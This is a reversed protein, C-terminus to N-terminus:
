LWLVATCFTFMTMSSFGNLQELHRLDALTTTENGSMCNPEEQVGSALPSTRDKWQSKSCHLRAWHSTGSLSGAFSAWPGDYGSVAGYFGDRSTGGCCAGVWAAVLFCIGRIKVVACLYLLIMAVKHGPPIKNSSFSFEWLLITLWSSLNVFWRGRQNWKMIESTIYVYICSEKMTTLLVIYLLYPFLLMEFLICVHKVQFPRVFMEPPSLIIICISCTWSRVHLDIFELKAHDCFLCAWTYKSVNILSIDQTSIKWVGLLVCLLSLKLFRKDIHFCPLFLFVHQQKESFFFFLM